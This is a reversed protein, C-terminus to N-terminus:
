SRLLNLDTIIFYGTFIVYMISLHDHFIFWYFLYFYVLLISLIYLFIRFFKIQFEKNGIIEEEFIRVEEFSSVLKEIDWREISAVIVV